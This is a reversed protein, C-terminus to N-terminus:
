YWCLWKKDNNIIDEYLYKCEGDKPRESTQTQCVHGTEALWKDWNEKAVQYNRHSPLYADGCNKPKKASAASNSSAECEATHVQMGKFASKIFIKGFSLKLKNILGHAKITAKGSLYYSAFAGVPNEKSLISDLQCSSLTIKYSYAGGEVKEVGIIKGDKITVAIDSADTIDLLLIGNTMLKKLQPPVEASCANLATNISPIEDLLASTTKAEVSFNCISEASAYEIFLVAALFAMIFISCKVIM